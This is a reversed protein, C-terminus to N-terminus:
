VAKEKSIPIFGIARCGVKTHIALITELQKKMKEKGPKIANGL